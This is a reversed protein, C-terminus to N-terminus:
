GEDGEVAAKAENLAAAANDIHDKASQLCVFMDSIIAGFTQGDPAADLREAFTKPETM